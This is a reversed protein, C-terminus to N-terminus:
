DRTVGFKSVLIDFYKEDGVYTQQASPRSLVGTIFQALRPSTKVADFYFDKLIVKNFAHIRLIFPAIAVDALSFEEGLFYPGTASQELLLENFQKLNILM